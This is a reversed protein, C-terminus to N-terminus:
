LCLVLVSGCKRTHLSAACQASGQTCKRTHLCAEKHAFKSRLYLAFGVHVQTHCLQAPITHSMHSMHSMHTVHTHCLQAPILNLGLAFFSVQAGAQMSNCSGSHQIRLGQSTVPLQSSSAVPSAPILPVGAATTSTAKTAVTAAPKAGASHVPVAGGAAVTSAGAAAPAPAAPAAAAAAAAAVAGAEAKTQSVTRRTGKKTTTSAPSGIAPAKPEKPQHLAALAEPTPYLTFLRGLIERVQLM